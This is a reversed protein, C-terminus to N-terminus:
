PFLHSSKELHKPSNGQFAMQGQVRYEEKPPPPPLPLNKIVLENEKSTKTQEFKREEQKLKPLQYTEQSKDMEGLHGMKNTYLQECCERLITQIAATNTTTEGRENKIEKIQTREKKKKLM